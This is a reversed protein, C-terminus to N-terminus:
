LLCPVEYTKLDTGDRSRFDYIVGGKQCTVGQRAGQPAFSLAKRIKEAKLWSWIGSRVTNKM